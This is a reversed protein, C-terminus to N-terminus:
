FVPKSDNMVGQCLTGSEVRLSQIVSSNLGFFQISPAHAMQIRIDKKGALDIAKELWQYVEKLDGLRCCYCALNDPMLYEDPFKDVVPM